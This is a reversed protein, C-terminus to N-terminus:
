ASCALICLLTPLGRITKIGRLAAFDAKVDSLEIAISSTIVDCYYLAELAAVTDIVGGPCENPALLAANFVKHNAISLPICEDISSYYRAQAGCSKAIRSGPLRLPQVVDVQSM